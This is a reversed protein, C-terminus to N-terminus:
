SRAATESFLGRSNDVFLAIKTGCKPRVPRRIVAADNRLRITSVYPLSECFPLRYDPAHILWTYKAPFLRGVTRYEDNIIQLKHVSLVQV